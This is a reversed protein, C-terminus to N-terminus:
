PAEFRLEKKDKIKLNAIRKYNLSSRLINSSLTLPKSGAGNSAFSSKQIDLSGEPVEQIYSTGNVFSTSNNLNYLLHGSTNLPYVDCSNRELRFHSSPLIITSLESPRYQRIMSQNMVLFTLLKYKKQKLTDNM